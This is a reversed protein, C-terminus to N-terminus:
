GYLAVQDSARRLLGKPDRGDAHVDAGRPRRRPRDALHRRALEPGGDQRAVATVDRWLRARDRRAPRPVRRLERGKAASRRVARASRDGGAGRQPAGANGGPDRVDLYWLRRRCRVHDRRRGRSDAAALPWSRQYRTLSARRRYENRYEKARSEM